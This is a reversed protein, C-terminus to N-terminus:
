WRILDKEGLMLESDEESAISDVPEWGEKRMQRLYYEIRERSEELSENTDSLARETPLLFILGSFLSAMGGVIMSLAVTNMELHEFLVDYSCKKAECISCETYPKNVWAATFV